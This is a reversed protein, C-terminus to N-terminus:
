GKPRHCAAPAGMANQRHELGRQVVDVRGGAGGHVVVLGGCLDGAAHQDGVRVAAGVHERGAARAEGRAPRGAVRPM